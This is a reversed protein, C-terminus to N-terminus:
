RKERNRLSNMSIKGSCRRSVSGRVQDYLSLYRTRSAELEHQTRRLEENQMELEIQHVHLEHLVERLNKPSLPKGTLNDKSRALEEARKRLNRTHDSTDNETM